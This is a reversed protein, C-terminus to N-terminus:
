DKLYELSKCGCKNKIDLLQVM